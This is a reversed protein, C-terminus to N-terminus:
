RRSSPAADCVRGRPGRRVARPTPHVQVHPPVAPLATPTALSAILSTLRLMQLGSLGLAGFLGVAEGVSTAAVV